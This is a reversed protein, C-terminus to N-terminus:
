RRELKRIHDMMKIQNREIEESRLRLSRGLSWGAWLVVPVGIIPYAKCLDVFTATAAIIMFGAVLDLFHTRISKWRERMPIKKVDIM